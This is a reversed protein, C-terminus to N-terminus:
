HGYYLCLSNFTRSLIGDKGLFRVRKVTSAKSIPSSGSPECLFDSTCKAWGRRCGSVEMAQVPFSSFCVSNDTLESDWSSVAQTREIGVTRQSWTHM